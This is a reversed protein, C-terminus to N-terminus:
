YRSAMDARARQKDLHHDERPFRFIQKLVAVSMGKTRLIGIRGATVRQMAPPPAILRASLSIDLTRQLGGFDVYLTQEDFRSPYYM